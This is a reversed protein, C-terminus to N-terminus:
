ALLLLPARIQEAFFIPSRDRWLERDTIPNGML